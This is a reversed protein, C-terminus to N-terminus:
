RAVRPTSTPDPPVTPPPGVQNAMIVAILTVAIIGGIIIAVVKQGKM